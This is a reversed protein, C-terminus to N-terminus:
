DSVDMLWGEKVYSAFQAPQFLFVDPADGSIMRPKLNQDYNLGDLVADEVKINPYKKMFADLTPKDEGKSMWSAYKLTVQDQAATSHVTSLAACLIALVILIRAIKLRPISM